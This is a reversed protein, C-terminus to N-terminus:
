YIKDIYSIHITTYFVNIIHITEIIQILILDKKKSKQFIKMFFHLFDFIIKLNFNNKKESVITESKM